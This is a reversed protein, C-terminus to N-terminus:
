IVRISFLTSMNYILAKFPKEGLNVLLCLRYGGQHLYLLCQEVKEPTVGLQRRVDQCVGIVTYSLQNFVCGKRSLPPMTM